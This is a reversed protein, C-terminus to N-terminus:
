MRYVILELKTTEYSRTLLEWHDSTAWSIEPNEEGQSHVIEEAVNLIKRAKRVWYQM